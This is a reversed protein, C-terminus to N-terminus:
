ALMGGEKKAITMLAVALGVSDGGQEYDRVWLPLMGIRVFNKEADTMKAWVARATSNTM